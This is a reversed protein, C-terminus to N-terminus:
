FMEIKLIGTLKEESRARGASSARVFQRQAFADAPAVPFLGSLIGSNAIFFPHRDITKRM